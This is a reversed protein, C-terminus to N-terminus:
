GRMAAGAVKIGTFIAWVLVPVVVAAYKPLGPVRRMGIVALTMAALMFLEISSAFAVLAHGANEPLASALSSSVVDWIRQLNVSGDEKSLFIPLGILGGVVNALNAHCVIAMLSSFGSEGGFSKSGGWFLLAVLFPTLVVLLPGAIMTTTKMMSVIRPAASAPIPRGSSARQAIVDQAAGEWDLKPSVLASSGIGVVAWLLLPLWWTPRQVLRGFTASPKTFIGVVAEVAGIAPAPSSAAEPAAPAADTM